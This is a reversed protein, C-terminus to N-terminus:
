RVLMFLNVYNAVKLCILQTYSCTLFKVRIWNKAKNTVQCAFSNNLRQMTQECNEYRHWVLVSVTDLFDLYQNPQTPMMFFVVTKPDLNQFSLQKIRLIKLKFWPMFAGFINAMRIWVFNRRWNSKELVYLHMRPFRTDM